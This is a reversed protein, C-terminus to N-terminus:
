NATSTEYYLWYLCIFRGFLLLASYNMVHGPVLVGKANMVAPKGHSTSSSTARNVVIACLSFVITFNIFSGVLFFSSSSFFFFLLNTTIHHCSCYHM